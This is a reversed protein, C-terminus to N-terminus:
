KERHGRKRKKDKNRKLEIEEKRGKEGIKNELMVSLQRLDRSVM